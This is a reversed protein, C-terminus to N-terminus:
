VKGSVLTSLQKFLGYITVNWAYIEKCFLLFHDKNHDCKKLYICHM